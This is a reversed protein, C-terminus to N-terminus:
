SAVLLFMAGNVVFLFLGLSLITFPLTLLIIVPRVFTNAIGLLFAAAWLHAVADIRVGALMLDALWLGFATILLRGVFGIAKDKALTREWSHM